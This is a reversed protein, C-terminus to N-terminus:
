NEIDAYIEGFKHTSFDATYNGAKVVMHDHGLFNNVVINESIPVVGEPTATIQDFVLHLKGNEVQATATGYPYGDDPTVFNSTNESFIVCIGLTYVCNAGHRLRLRPKDVESAANKTTASATISPQTVSEKECSIAILSVFLLPFLLKKMNPFFFYFQKSYFLQQEADASKAL